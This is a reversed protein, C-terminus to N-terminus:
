EFAKILQGEKNFLLNLSYEKDLNSIIEEVNPVKPNTNASLLIQFFLPYDAMGKHQKYYAYLWNTDIKGSNRMKIYEQKM